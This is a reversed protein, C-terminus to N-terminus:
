AAKEKNKNRKWFGIGAVFALLGFGGFVYYWINAGKSQLSITKDNGLVVMASWFNPHAAIAKANGIYDLKAKRLAESKTMGSQLNKYFSTILISTALDNVQWLTM